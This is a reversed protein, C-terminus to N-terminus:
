MVWLARAENNLIWLTENEGTHTTKYLHYTATRISREHVSTVACWSDTMTETLTVFSAFM